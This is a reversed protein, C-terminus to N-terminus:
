RAHRVAYAIRDDLRWEAELELITVLLDEIADGLDLQRQLESRDFAQNQDMRVM